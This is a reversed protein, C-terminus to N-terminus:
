QVLLGSQRLLQTSKCGEYKSLSDTIRSLYVSGMESTIGSFAVSIPQAIYHMKETHEMGLTTAVFQPFRLQNNQTRAVMRDRLVEAVRLRQMNTPDFAFGLVGIRDAHTLADFASLFSADLEAREEDIIQIDQKDLSIQRWDESFHFRYANRSETTMPNGSLCGYVHNVKISSLLDRAETPSAGYSNVVVNVLYYELSLDYNFTIISLQTEKLDQINKQNIGECIRGWLYEYWHDTQDILSPNAARSHFLHDLQQRERLALAIGHKGINGLTNGTYTLEKGRRALFADISTMGSRQFSDCFNEIEERHFWGKSHPGLFLEPDCLRKRLDKGSPYGYPMSAGAGLVLVTKERIM